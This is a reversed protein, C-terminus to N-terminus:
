EIIVEFDDVNWGCLDEKMFESKPPIKHPNNDMDVLLQGVEHPLLIQEKVASKLDCDFFDLSKFYDGDEDKGCDLTYDNVKIKVSKSLTISVLVEIEREELDVHNWPADKTDAGLPYNYNDM